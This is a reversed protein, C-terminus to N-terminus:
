PKVEQPEVAESLASLVERDSDVAVRPELVRAIERDAGSADTVTGSREFWDLAPLVVDAAKTLISERTAQVIVTDAGRAVDLMRDVNEERDDGAFLYAVDASGHLDDTGVDTGTNAQRPLSLVKSGTMGALAYANVITDESVDPGLVVVGIGSTLAPVADMLTEADVDSLASAGEEVVEVADESVRDLGTGAEISVDSKRGFRDEDEDVSLLTAGGKSARRVYSAAVPHTDVIDTDFVVVSDADLLARPGSARLGSPSKEFHKAVQRAIRKEERARGAGPVEVAADYDDMAEAFADLTESPLRDSAVADVTEADELLDAVRDTAVDVGVAGEGRISPEHIRDRDDGLLGFRGMECLQGGDPGDEVGEIKVIRGSNTYVELECGMSCESCTTQVVDCDEERGRYASLPSYLAGTPCSQVCAGCSVCSSEGLPVDDDAVITADKGRNGFSLTDNGVVEDCTRICRGCSICRDLDMTIFENSTDPDIEPYELPFRSSDLGARNFMDELECDGEMECYMCYHNEESFMLELITQRHDWLDDTDVEVEMGDQVATTCATELRSGDIEVLCMRCAGVNTLDAYACLTPIDIDTRETAELITEGQKAQVEQGNIELTVGLEADADTAKSM